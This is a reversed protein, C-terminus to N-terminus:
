RPNLAALTPAPAEGTALWTVSAPPQVTFTNPDIGQAHQAHRAVLVAPHEGNAHVIKWTPSAPHGVIFTNPDIQSRAQTAQQACAASSGLTLLAAAAVASLATFATLHRM